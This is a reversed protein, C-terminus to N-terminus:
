NCRTGDNSTLSLNQPILKLQAFAQLVMIGTCRMKTAIGSDPTAANPIEAMISRDPWSQTVMNKSNFLLESHSRQVKIGAQKRTCLPKYNASLNGRFILRAKDVEAVRSLNGM